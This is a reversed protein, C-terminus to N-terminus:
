EAFLAFFRFICTMHFRPRPFGAVRPLFFLVQWTMDGGGWGTRVQRKTRLPPSLPGKVYCGIAWFKVTEKLNDFFNFSPLCCSCYQFKDHWYLSHRPGQLLQLPPPCSFPYATESGPWMHGSSGPEIRGSAMFHCPFFPGHSSPNIHTWPTTTQYSFM